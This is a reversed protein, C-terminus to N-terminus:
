AKMERMFKLNAYRCLLGYPVFRTQRAIKVLRSGNAILYEAIFNQKLSQDLKVLEIKHEKPKDLLMFSRYTHFIINCVCLDLIEKKARLVQTGEKAHCSVIRDMVIPLDKQHKRIGEYSVSQGEVGLRYLYIPSSYRAVTNASLMCYFVYEADTYFCHEAITRGQGQLLKTRIAIEHMVFLKNKIAINEIYVVGDPLEQHNDILKRYARVEVYPSVILDADTEDLFVLFSSLEETNFWDDGDLLKFYKGSARALSTNVTSGYGGNEKDVVIISDPYQRELEHAINSTKDKSGDNVIIVELKDMCEKDIFLSQVTEALTKETNYSAISITLLKESM